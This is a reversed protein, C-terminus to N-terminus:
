IRRALLDTYSNGKHAKAVDKIEGESLPDSKGPHFLRFGYAHLIGVPALVDEGARRLGEPWYEFYIQAQSNRKLIQEMGRLVEAEWGQVDMKIFDIKENPLISDLTEVRVRVAEKHTPSASLRNDGSNFQPRYLMADGPKSGLAVNRLLVIDQKGNSLTNSLAAQFLVPDPEFAFVRGAAGVLDALLISYLGINSGIDLVTMGPSVHRSLFEHEKRGMLGLTHLQVYLWRDFNPVRISYRGHRTERNWTSLRNFSGLVNHVASM